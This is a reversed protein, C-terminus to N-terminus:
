KRPNLGLGWLKSNSIEDIFWLSKTSSDVLCKNSLYYKIQKPDTKGWNLYLTDNKIDYRGTYGGQKITVILWFTQYFKFYNHEKLVMYGDQFENAMGSYVALTKSRRYRKKDFDKNSVGCSSLFLLLAFYKLFRSSM